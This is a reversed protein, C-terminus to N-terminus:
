RRVRKGPLGTRNWRKVGMKRDFQLGQEKMEGEARIMGDELGSSGVFYQQMHM